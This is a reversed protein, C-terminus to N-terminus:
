DLSVVYGFIKNCIECVYLRLGSYLRWVYVEFGYLMSFFKNCKICEYVGNSMELLFIDDINDEEKM